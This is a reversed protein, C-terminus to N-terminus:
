LVIGASVFNSIIGVIIIVAYWIKRDEQIKEISRVLILGIILGLPFATFHYGQWVIPQNLKIWFTALILYIVLKLLYTSDSERIMEYSRRSISRTAVRSSSTKKNPNNKKTNSMNLRLYVLDNLMIM